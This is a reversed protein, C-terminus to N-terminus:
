RSRDEAINTREIAQWESVFESGEAVARRGVTDLVSLVRASTTTSRIAGLRAEISADRQALLAAFVADPCIALRRGVWQLADDVRESKLAPQGRAAALYECTATFVVEHSWDALACVAIARRAVTDRANGGAVVHLNRLRSREPWERLRSWYQLLETRM